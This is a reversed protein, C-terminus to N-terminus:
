QGKYNENEIVVMTLNSEMGTSEGIKCTMIVEDEYSLNKGAHIRGRAGSKYLAKSIMDPTNEKDLLVASLSRELISVLELQRGHATILNADHWELGLRSFMYQMSSLGPVIRGIPIDQKKLYGVIGYFTPDGSALLVINGKHELERKVQSVTKLVIVDTRISRISEAIRGFAMVVDASEITDIAEATLHRPNGPGAGVVTLM